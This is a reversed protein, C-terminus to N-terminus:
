SRRSHSNTMKLFVKVSRWARNERESVTLRDNSSHDLTWLYFEIPDRPTDVANGYKYRPPNKRM